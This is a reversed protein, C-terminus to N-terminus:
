SSSNKSPKRSSPRSSSVEELTVAKEAAALDRYLSMPLTNDRGLYIWDLTLGNISKALRIAADRPLPWGSEYNNWSRYEIGVQAAFRAQSGHESGVVHHRLIRLRRAVPDTDSYKPAKRAMVYRTAMAM